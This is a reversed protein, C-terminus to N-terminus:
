RAVFLGLSALLRARLDLRRGGIEGNCFFGAIAPRGLLKRAARVDHDPAGFLGVGRGNALSRRPQSRQCTTCPPTSYSACGDDAARADRV